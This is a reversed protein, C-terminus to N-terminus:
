RIGRCGIKHKPQEIGKTGHCKCVRPMIHHQLNLCGYGRCFFSRRLNRHPSPHHQGVYDYRQTVEWHSKHAIPCIPIMHAFVNNNVCCIRFPSHKKGVQHHDNVDDSTILHSGNRTNSELRRAQHSYDEIMFNLIM